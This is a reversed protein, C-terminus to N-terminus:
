NNLAKINSLEIITYIEEGGMRPPPQNNKKLLIGSFMIKVGPKKLPEPISAPTEIIGTIRGDITKPIVYSITYKDIEKWYDVIGIQDTVKIEEMGISKKKIKEPTGCSTIILLLLM